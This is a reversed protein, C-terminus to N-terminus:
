ALPEAAPTEPRTLIDLATLHMERLERIDKKLTERINRIQELRERTLQDIQDFKAIVMGEQQVVSQHKERLKDLLVLDDITVIDEPREGHLVSMSPPRSFSHQFSQVGTKM